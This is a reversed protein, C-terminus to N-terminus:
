FFQRLAKLKEVFGEYSFPKAVYGNAGMKYAQDITGQNSYVSLIIVPILCLKSNSKIFKLVEMGNVLPLDLGLIVLDIGGNDGDVDIKQLYDITEKGDKLLLIKKKIGETELVDIIIEAHDSDNEILLIEAKKMDMDMECNKYYKM